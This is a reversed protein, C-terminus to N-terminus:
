GREEKSNRVSVRRVGRPNWPRIFRRFATEFILVAKAAEGGLPKKTRHEIRGTARAEQGPYLCYRFRCFGPQLM